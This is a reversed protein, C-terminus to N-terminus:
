RHVLPPFVVPLSCGFGLPRREKTTQKKAVRNVRGASSQIDGPLCVLYKHACIHTQM